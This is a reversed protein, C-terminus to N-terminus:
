PPAPSLPHTVLGAGRYLHLRHIGLSHHTPDFLFCRLAAHSPVACRVANFCIHIVFGSSLFSRASLQISGAWRDNWEGM